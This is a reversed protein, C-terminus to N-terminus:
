PGIDFDSHVIFLNTSEPEKLIDVNSTSNIVTDM